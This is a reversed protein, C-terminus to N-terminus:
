RKAEYIFEVQSPALGEGAWSITTSGATTPIQPIPVPPDEETPELITYYITVPTGNNYQETVFEKFLDGTSMGAMRFSINGNYISSGVSSNLGVEDYNLPSGDSVTGGDIFHSSLLSIRDKNQGSFLTRFSNTYCMLIQNLTFASYNETGNLVIKGVQRVVKGTGYDIYDAYEGIKRLPESGIYIDVPTSGSLLPLKYGYPEYPLATSGSNVMVSENTIRGNYRFYAGDSPKKYFESFKATINSRERWSSSIINQNSDYFVIRVSANTINPYVTNIFSLWVDGTVPILESIVYNALPRIIGSANLYGEEAYNEEDLLNATREGCESPVIPNEPTPTGTQETNGYVKYRHLYGAKTGTLVAPLTGTYTTTTYDNSLKEGWLKAYSDYIPIDSQIATLIEWYTLM